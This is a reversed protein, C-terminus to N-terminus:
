SKDISAKLLETLEQVPHNTNNIERTMDDWDKLESFIDKCYLNNRGALAAYKLAEQPNHGNLLATLFAAGATDGAGSANKIKEVEAPFAPCFWQQNSWEEVDLGLEGKKNIEEVDKTWLFLGRHAAKILVVNAGLAVLTAGLESILEVSTLDIIDGETAEFLTYEYPFVIKLAEELSPMFIDTYPLTNRLVQIWNVKGSDSESDPLSFDLSTVVKRRQVEQFLKTLHKGQQKYFQKLLPPYGFHFIQCNEVVNFDISEIDYLESCGPSELFIRDVGPPSIVLGFATGKETVTKIGQALGYEQLASIAIKGIFDSGILGNLLVQQSFKKMALGTNAVVGGLTSEMGDIEILRGPRLVQYQTHRDEQIKFSPVLDVCIYGAIIANFKKM